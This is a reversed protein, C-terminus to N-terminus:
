EYRLAVMPDVRMARRAPLYSAVLTVITLVTTVGIYTAPDTASVQFLLGQMLRTLALAGLIGIGAGTLALRLGQGLVLRLVDGPSAGSAMRIGIEHTRQISTYAIVGYLGVAALVLALAAFLSLLESSFRPQAVSASVVDDMSRVASIAQDKDMSHVIERLTTALQLPNAAARVVVDMDPPPYQALPVYMAARPTEDLAGQKVTGVIGVIERARTQDGTLKLHQGLPNKGGFFRQVFEQNVAVVGATRETDRSSLWRGSLLPVRMANLLGPTAQRLNADDMQGSPYVRGEVHFPNNGVQGSLPLESIAGASEVGPLSELREELQGYFALKLNRSRSSNSMHLTTTVVHDPRFGPDVHVLRWFSNFLLAGGILLGVSLAVEGIVLVNGLRHRPTRDSGRGGENLVEQLSGQSFKIAPALGFLIGTLLSVGAAFGLVGLDVQIENVRPLSPPALARLGSVGWVAVFLGLTGGAISLVLSETLMQRAVRSRVAGLATRIAIEKRRGSARALLLNAVNACGILLLFVVSGLLLLLTTETDGVVYSTLPKIGLGFDKNTDPHETSIDRAITDLEAKAQNISIGPKMRAIVALFRAQRSYIGPNDMPLPLWIEARSISPIDEPLVGVVTVVQGDLVVKRGIIGPDGGYSRKWIGRGLIAVQPDFNKEDSAVFSRGVVPRAGLADFFNWSVIQSRIQAPNEGGSIDSIGEQYGVAAFQQFSKAHARYDEFDPPSVGADSSLSIRGDGYLLQQQSPFPLPRLLVADVVSFMATSAGIGLALTLVAVATFGPKLALTRIGYRIDEWLSEMKRL